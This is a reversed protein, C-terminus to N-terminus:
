KGTSLHSSIENCCQKVNEDSSFNNSVVVLASDIDLSSAVVQSQPDRFLLTGLCVCAKYANDKNKEIQIFEIVSTILQM